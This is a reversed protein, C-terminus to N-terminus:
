PTATGAREELDQRGQQHRCITGKYDKLLGMSKSPDSALSACIGTAGDDMLQTSRATGIRM